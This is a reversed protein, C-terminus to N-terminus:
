GRKAVVLMEFVEQTLPDERSYAGIKAGFIEVRTFGLTGLLWTMESPMYYRENSEIEHKVGDDDTFTTLNHDRLTMVDFNQSEYSAVGEARVGDYFEKLPQHLPYLANLTTLIFLAEEKLAKAVSKLIDYNMEDTEMLPFGGECLMIAVDFARDFPLNRADYRLFEIVLNEEDAKEAARRLQAQSLDIGTVRYGRKTLEIAHRGTGCGVDLIRLSKNFGLERELFDCEGLTGQTFVEEDYKKGYNEFLKEYWAKSM